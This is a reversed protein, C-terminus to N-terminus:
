SKVDKIMLGRAGQIDDENGKNVRQQEAGM